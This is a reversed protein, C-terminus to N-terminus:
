KSRKSVFIPNSVIKGGFEDTVDLRYYTKVNTNLVSDEFTIECPLSENYEKILKGERILKITVKSHASYTKHALKIKILPKGNCIIEDGSYAIIKPNASDQIIFQELLPLPTGQRGSKSVAYMKGSKMANIVRQYSRDELLFVTQVVDVPKDGYDDLEGIAWVPLKRKGACYATLVEDWLGGIRGIKQYGEPLVAFGTYNITDLISEYYPPTHVSIGEKMWKEESEPHAWFTVGGKANVYDILDQYPNGGQEGHYADYRSYGNGIVPLHEYADPTNLGIVLIHKGRNNLMLERRGFKDKLHTQFSGSWYYFPISEVGDILVIDPNASQRNRILELYNDVGYNFVSEKVVTKKVLWRLPHIAYEYNLTDHDTIIIISIGRERALKIYNGIRRTGGSVPTQLHIIGNVQQYKQNSQGSTITPIPVRSSQANLHLGSLILIGVFLDWIIFVSVIGSKSIAIRVRSILLRSKTM